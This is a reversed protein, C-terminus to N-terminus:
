AAYHAWQLLSDARESFCTIKLGKQFFPQLQEDVFTQSLKQVVQPFVAVFKEVDEPSMGSGETQFIQKAQESLKGGLLDQFDDLSLGVKELADLGPSRNQAVITRLAPLPDMTLGSDYPDNFQEPSALFVTGDELNKFAHDSPGFFKFLVDPAHKDKLAIANRFSGVTQQLLLGLFEGKWAPESDSM